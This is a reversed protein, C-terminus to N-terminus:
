HKFNGIIEIIAMRYHHYRNENTNGQHSYLNLVEETVKQGNQINEKTFPRNLEKM